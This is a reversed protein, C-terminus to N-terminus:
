KSLPLFLFFFSSTNNIYGSRLEMESVGYHISVM